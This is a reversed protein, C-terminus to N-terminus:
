KGFAALFRKEMAPAEPSLFLAVTKGERLIRADKAAAYQEPLYNETEACVQDRRSAALEELKKAAEEDAAEILWIEDVRLGDEAIYMLLQQCAAPDIGYYSEIRKESLALMDPLEVTEAIDGYLKQLDVPEAPKAGCASLLCLAALLFLAALARITHKM